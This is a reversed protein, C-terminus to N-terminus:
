IDADRGAVADVAERADDFSFGRRLLFDTTKKRRKRPDAESALADWRKQADAQAREDLDEDDALEALAADILARDVGRQLLDQRIRAPGHGRGTFRGRAYARAYAADDLVDLRALADLTDAVVPEAFGRTRLARAIEATTRARDALLRLAAAKADFTEQRVLLARQADAGLALGKRLGAEIALDLSLGFAFADDVFVSVRDPDKKQQAVRTVTGDQLDLAAPDPRQQPRTQFSM